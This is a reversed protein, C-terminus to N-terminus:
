FRWKCWGHQGDAWSWGLLYGARQAVHRIAGIGEHYGAYSGFGQTGNRSWDPSSLLLPLGTSRMSFASYSYFTVRYLQCNAPCLSSAQHSRKCWGLLVFITLAQRPFKEEELKVRNNLLAKFCKLLDGEIQIELDRRSTSLIFHLNLSLDEGQKM